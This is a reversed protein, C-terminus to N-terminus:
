QIRRSPLYESLSGSAVAVCIASRMRRQSTAFQYAAPRLWSEGGRIEKPADASTEPPEFLAQTQCVETSPLTCKGADTFDVATTQIGRFSRRPPVGVCGILEIKATM